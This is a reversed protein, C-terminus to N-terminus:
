LPQLNHGLGAAWALLPDTFTAFGVGHADDVAILTGCLATGGTAADCCIWSGSDGAQARARLLHPLVPSSSEGRIEFLNTFCRFQGDPFIIRYSFAYAGVTYRGFRRSVAGYMYTPHGAQFHRRGYITSVAGVRTIMADPTLPRDIDILAADVEAMPAGSDPNCLQGNRQPRVSAYNTYAVDGASPYHTGGVDPFHIRTNAQQAVHGCTLGFVDGNQDKLFGGLSGLMTADVQSGGPVAAAVRPPTRVEVVTFFPQRDAIARLQRMIPAQDPTPPLVCIKVVFPPRDKRHHAAFKEWADCSWDIDYNMAVPAASREFLPWQEPAVGMAAYWDFYQRWLPHLDIVVGLTRMSISEESSLVKMLDRFPPTQAFQYQAEM